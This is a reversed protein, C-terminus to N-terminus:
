SNSINQTSVLRARDILVVSNNGENLVVYGQDNVIQIITKVVEQQASLEKKVLYNQLTPGILLVYILLVSLIAIVVLAILLKKDKM